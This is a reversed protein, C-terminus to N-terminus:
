GESKSGTLRKVTGIAYKKGLRYSVKWQQTNLNLIVYIVASLTVCIVSRVLLGPIGTLPVRECVLFVAAIGVLATFVFRGFLLLYEKPSRKFLQTFLVYTEWPVFIGLLVVMTPIQVGMLSFEVNGTHKFVLWVFLISLVTNAAMGIYPKWKDAEWLGAADKFVLPIMRLERVFFYMVICLLLPRDFLYEGGVWLTIFPQYLGAFCSACMCIFGIWLFNMRKFLNYNNEKTDLVLKNGVSALISTRLVTMLQCVSSLLHIYNDYKGLNAEGLFASIIISDISFIFTSGFRHGFLSKIKTVLIQKEEQTPKGECSIDPYARKKRFHLILNQPVSMVAYVLIYLYYNKTYWFVLFQGAYQLIVVITYIQFNVETRQHATFISGEYAFMWYTMVAHFLYMLYLLYYGNDIPDKVLFRLFPLVLLGAVCVVAGVVRYISRMMTMLRRITATDGEAVPKYMMYVAASAFGLETLNLVQLISIFLSSYGIYIIGNEISHLIYRRLLMPFVMHLVRYTVGWFSNNITHRTRGIQKSHSM